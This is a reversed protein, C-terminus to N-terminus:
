SSVAFTELIDPGLAALSRRVFTPADALRDVGFSAASAIGDGGIVRPAHFWCLRDVLRARLLVASIQAGGEVLVRTIGREALAELAHLPDPRGGEGPAVDILEVGAQSYAARRGADGGPLAILWTPTQRASAVLEHTLPLRLRGDMVVRVPSRHALGPLRCSLSPNDTLATGAGVMVADHEARMLHARARAPEDTIWQSEGSHTAIRGDLTTALKLTVLPRGHKVRLFFGANVEEAAARGAGLVVEIGAERLIAFGRGSVRPDPDEVAAVVRSIGAAVLAEACPPTSGHHACPELSVYACAGRAAAGARDLAEAEAHPRGGPQTWGRGVIEQDRVLVCGVAPNPWVAGLGRRALGLAIAMYREDLPTPAETASASSGASSSRM